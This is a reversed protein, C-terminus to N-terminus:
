SEEETIRISKLLSDMEQAIAMIEQRAQESVNQFPSIEAKPNETVIQYVTESDNILEEITRDDQSQVTKTPTAASLILGELLLQLIAALPLALLAGLFGFIANFTILSLLIIIPHVGMSNRMIRPVLLVNEMGQILMTAVIVWVAKDPQIAMAVLFAPVAGLAPGFIPILEMFGAFIGLLLTYPLGILAYAVFAASGVALCLLAEGRLYGGIKEEVKKVFERVSSRRARPVLRLLNRIVYDSEQTWYYAVLLVALFGLIGRTILGTYQFTRNVQNLVEESTPNNSGFFDFNAPIRMGINHLLLNNSNLLANRFDSQIQPLHQSFLTAQDVLLPVFLIIFGTLLAAITVYIIIIGAPRSIGRRYFWEVAPRMTTGIVIAIFFLFLVQRFHYLLWFFLFVCVVFLTALVIDNATWSKIETPEPTLTETM